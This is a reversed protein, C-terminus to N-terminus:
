VLQKIKETVRHFEKVKRRYGPVSRGATIKGHELFYSIIDRDIKDLENIVERTKCVSDVFEPIDPEYTIKGDEEVKILLRNPFRIFKYYNDKRNWRFHDRVLNLFQNKVIRKIWAKYTVGPIIKDYKQNVHILIDQSVDEWDQDNLDINYHTYKLWSVCDATYALIEDKREEETTKM